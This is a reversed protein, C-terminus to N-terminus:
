TCNLINDTLFESRVVHQSVLVRSTILKLASSSSLRLWCYCMERLIDDLAMHINWVVAMNEYSLLLLFSLLRFSLSKFKRLFGLANRWIMITIIIISIIIYYCFHNYESLEDRFFPLKLKLNFGPDWFFRPSGMSYLSSSRASELLENSSQPSITLETEYPLSIKLERSKVFDKYKYFVFLDEPDGWAKILRYVIKEPWIDPRVEKLDKSTDSKAEIDSRKVIELWDSLKTNNSEMQKALWMSFKLKKCPFGANNKQKCYHRKEKVFKNIQLINESTIEKINMLSKPVEPPVIKKQQAKLTFKESTKTKKRKELLKEQQKKQKRCKASDKSSSSTECGDVTKAIAALASTKNVTDPKWLLPFKNPSVPQLEKSLKRVSKTTKLCNSVNINVILFLLLFSTVKCAASRRGFFKLIGPEGMKITHDWPIQYSLSISETKNLKTIM